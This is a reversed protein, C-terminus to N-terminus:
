RDKGALEPGFTQRVREELEAAPVGARECDSMTGWAWLFWNEGIEADSQCLSCAARAAYLERTLPGRHPWPLRGWAAAKVAALGEASLRGSVYEDSADLCAIDRAALVPIM